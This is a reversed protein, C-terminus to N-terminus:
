LQHHATLADWQNCLERISPLVMNAGEDALAKDPLPGSNVGITFINASVGARVGMPANEVVIGEWPKMGGAFELGKLYPDPAPKGRSVNYASVIHHEDIYDGFDHLLRAILPRQGSGTVVCISMGAQKIKAMLDHVGDFIEAEPMQHFIRAKEDYIAQAQAESLTKGLQREAYIRITDIGRMGETAYSDEATFHIGNEAMAQQWAIAHHPMSNYLVGDMDFLVCRFGAWQTHNPMVGRQTLSNLYQRIQTEYM